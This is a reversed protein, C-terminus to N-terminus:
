LKQPQLFPLLGNKGSKTKKRRNKSTKNKRISKYRKTAM